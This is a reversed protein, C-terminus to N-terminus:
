RLKGGNSAFNRRVLIVGCALAGFIAFSLALGSADGTSPTEDSSDVDTGNESDSSDSDGSASDDDDPNVADDGSGGKDGDQSDQEWKAYITTDATIPAAFDFESTLAEDAYWGAFTYGDKVPSAPQQVCTGDEVEQADVASGGASDFSVTHKIVYAFEATESAIMGDHFAKAKITASHALEIVGTYVASKETPETGDTTYRVVAGETECNLELAQVGSYAGPQLSATPAAVTEPAAVNVKLTVTESADTSDVNSPYKVTGKVEFSQTELKTKDFGTVKNWSIDLKGTEGCEYAVGVQQPLAWGNIDGDEQETQSKWAAAFSINADGLADLSRPKYKGTAPCSVYLTAKGDAQVVYAEKDNEVGNILTKLNNESLAYKVGDQKDTNLELSALYSTSHAATDDAPSWTITAGGVFYNTVDESVLSGAIKAKVTARTALTQDAQPLEIGFDLESVVPNYVATVETDDTIPSLKYTRNTSIVSENEGVWKEFVYGPYDPADLVFSGGHEVLHSEAGKSGHHGEAATDAYSITLTHEEVPQANNLVYYASRSASQVGDKEAWAELKYTSQKDAALLAINTGDEYTEDEAVTTWDDGELRSLNYRITANSTDCTAQLLLNDNDFKESDTDTSYIGEAVTVAPAAVAEEPEDTVTLNIVVFKCSEPLGIGDPADVEVYLSKPNPEPKVLKGEDFFESYDQGKEPGRIELNIKSGVNTTAVAKTPLQAKFDEWSTGEPVSMSFPLISTVEAGETTYENSTVSLTGADDVKVEAAGLDQRQSGTLTVSVDSAAIDFAFARDDKVDQNASLRAVYVTAAKATGTAPTLVGDKKEYWAVTVDMVPITGESKTDWKLSGATSLEKGVVPTQLVVQVDKTRELYEAALDVNNQPMKFTIYQNYKDTIYSTAPNLGTTKDTNWCKFVESSDSSAGNVTAQNDYKYNGVGTGNISVVYQREGKRQWADGDADTGYSVYYGDLDIFLTNESKSTFQEAIRRDETISTRVGVSSGDSLEGKIYSTRLSDDGLFIDDRTGDNRTNDKAITKGVLTVDFGAPVCIAGGEYGKGRTDCKNNTFSCGEFRIKDNDIYVAGGDSGAQNEEFSCNTVTLWEQGVYIAGGHFAAKNKKFSIGKITGENEGYSKVEVHVAAGAKKDIGSESSTDSINSPGRSENREFSGTGDTSCLTYFTNFFEVGGTVQGSNDSISSNGELYIKTKEGRSALCGTTLGYNHHMSSADMNVTVNDDSIYVAGCSSSNYEISAGDTMDITCNEKAYIAAGDYSFAGKATSNGGVIISDLELSSNADMLFAGGSGTCSGSTVLGGGHSTIEKQHADSPDYGTYTIDQKRNQTCTLELKSNEALHIVTHANDGKITHGLMDIKLTKSDAVEFTEGFDSSTWDRAMYITKGTYGATRAAAVSSYETKNGNDISYALVDDAQASSPMFLFASCAAAFCMAALLFSRKVGTLKM